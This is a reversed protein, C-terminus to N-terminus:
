HGGSNRPSQAPSTGSLIARISAYTAQRIDTPTHSNSQIVAAVDTPRVRRAFKNATDSNLPTQDWYVACLPDNSAFANGPAGIVEDVFLGYLVCESFDLRAAIATAWSLGTTSEVRNLMQQVIKPDWALPSSIYDAFPPQAPPLGLLERAVRHWVMHRGLEAGITGPDRFFRVAGDRFFMDATFPQVFEMDSDALLVVEETSAALAAMKIAQQQIWGRIPPFPRALNITLNKFPLRIFTRPLLAAENCIQTRAGALRSFLHFDAKPVVIRHCISDPSNDLVSRNLAACLEFDPAYSKTMVAMRVM